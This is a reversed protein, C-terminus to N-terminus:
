RGLASPQASDSRRRRKAEGQEYRTRGWCSPCTVAHADRIWLCKAGLEIAVECLACLADEYSNRIWRWDITPIARIMDAQERAEERRRELKWERVCGPCRAWIGGNRAARLIWGDEGGYDVGCSGCFTSADPEPLMQEALSHELCLDGEVAPDACLRCRATLERRDVNVRVV